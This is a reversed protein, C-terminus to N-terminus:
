VDTRETTANLLDRWRVSTLVPRASPDVVVADIAIVGGDTLHQLARRVGAERQQAFDAGIVGHSRELGGPWAATGRETLIAVLVMQQAVTMGCARGNADFVWTRTRPDVYRCEKTAGTVQDPFINGTRGTTTVPTGVGFPATGAAVTGAGSM